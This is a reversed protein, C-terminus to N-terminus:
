PSFSSSSRAPLPLTFALAIHVPVYKDGVKLAETALAINVAALSKAEKQFRKRLMATVIARAVRPHLSCHFFRDVLSASVRNENCTLCLVSADYRKEKKAYWFKQVM